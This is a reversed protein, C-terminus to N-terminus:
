ELLLDMVLPYHDSNYKGCFEDYFHYVFTDTIKNQIYKSVLIHDIMSYDTQSSTNCNNDSDWWDSYREEQRITESVTYLAYKGSYDGSYGKLIDLVKSTPMNNNLDLVENDYDNFDGIMIIEYGKNNYYDNIISQLIMAQGERQACRSPDTPIAILHASIMVVPINQFMFETIYHKSVGTSSSVGTYNCKSEYIPYNYRMDSRYLNVMPNLRTLMGVNQGTGTDTGKVLYPNYSNDHLEEILLNLEDCGEVECLNLIDPQLDQIVKSVYKLHTNAESENKWTCQTGPCDFADYHDIFLWEANYQMIRLTNKNRRRDSNANTIVPCETDSVTKFIKHIFIFVGLFLFNM